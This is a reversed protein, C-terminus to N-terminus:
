RCPFTDRSGPQPVTVPRDALDTILAQPYEKVAHADMQRGIETNSLVIKALIQPKARAPERRGHPV